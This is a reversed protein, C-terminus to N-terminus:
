QVLFVSLNSPIATIRVKCNHFRILELGWIRIDHQFIQSLSTFNSRAVLCSQTKYVFMNKEFRFGEGKSPSTLHPPSIFYFLM